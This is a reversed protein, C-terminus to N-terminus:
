VLYQKLALATRKGIGTLCIQLKEQGGGDCRENKEKKKSWNVNARQGGHIINWISMTYVLINLSEILFMKKILSIAVNTRVAM